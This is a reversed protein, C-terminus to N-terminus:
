WNYAVGVRYVIPSYYYPSNPEAAFDYLISIYYSVKDTFNRKFGVGGLKEDSMNRNQAYRYSPPTTLIDYEVQLFLFKLVLYRAFVGGGIVNYSVSQGGAAEITNNYVIQVGASFKDTIKYGVNPSLDYYFVNYGGSSYFQAALNCGFYLKKMLESEPAIPKKVPNNRVNGRGQNQNLNQQQQNNQQNNQDNQYYNQTGDNPMNNNQNYYNKITDGPTVKQYQTTDINQALSFVSCLLALKLLTIKNMMKTLIKYLYDLFM